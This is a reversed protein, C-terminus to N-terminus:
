LRVGSAKPIDATRGPLYGKAPVCRIVRTNRCKLKIQSVPMSPTRQRNTAISYQTRLKTGIDQFSQALDDVHYPYFFRGGTEAQCRRCIKDGDTLHYKATEATRKRASPDDITGRTSTSITFLHSRSRAQAM